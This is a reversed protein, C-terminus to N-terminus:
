KRQELEDLPVTEFIHRILWRSANERSFTIHGRIMLGGRHTIGMSYVDSRKSFDIIEVAMEVKINLELLLLLHYIKLLDDFSYLNAQGSFARRISPTICDLELYRKYQNETTNAFIKLIHKKQYIANQIFDSYGTDKGTNMSM